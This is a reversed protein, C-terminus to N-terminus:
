RIKQFGKGDRFLTFIGGNGKLAVQAKEKERITFIAQGM